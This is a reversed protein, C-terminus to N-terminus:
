YGYKSRLDDTSYNSTDTGSNGATSLTNLDPINWFAQPISAAKLQSIAKDYVPQYDKKYRDYVKTALQTLQNRQNDSLVGGNNLLNGFVNMSDSFSRGGTILKVQAETVQNGGTNLKVISDLLEADSVSGPISDAAQIRQLYPLGNATLKYQPLDIYNKVIANAARGYRSIDITSYNQTGDSNAVPTKANASAILSTARAGFSDTQAQKYLRDQLGISSGYKAVVQAIDQKYQNYDEAFTPSNVNTPVRIQTIANYGATVGAKLFENALTNQQSSETKVTDANFAKQGKLDDLKRKEAESLVDYISNVQSNYMDVSNKADTAYIKFLTDTQQQALQLNNQSAALQAQMPLLKITAERTIEAQQGGYVAETVGEKAGTARLNLLDSQMQATVGNISNQINNRAQQAEILGADRQAKLLSDQENAPAKLAAFKDKVLKLLSNDVQQTSSPNQNTPIQAGVVSNVASPIMGTTPDGGVSVNGGIATGHYNSNSPASGINVSQSGLQNSTVATNIPASYPSINSTADNSQYSLSSYPNSSAASYLSGFAGQVASPNYPPPAITSTGSPLSKAPGFGSSSDITGTFPNISKGPIYPASGGYTGGSSNSFAGQAGPVLSPPLNAGIPFLAGVGAVQSKNPVTPGQPPAPPAVTNRVGTINSNISSVLSSFIGM